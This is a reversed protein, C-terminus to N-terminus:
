GRDNPSSKRLAWDSRNQLVRLEYSKRLMNFVTTFANAKDNAERTHQELKKSQQERAHAATQGSQSM